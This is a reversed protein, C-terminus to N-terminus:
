KKTFAFWDMNLAANVITLTMVYRGPTLDIQALNDQTAWVHYAEHGCVDTSPLTVNGTKVTPTFTFQVQTTTGAVGEHGSIVYTGAQTVDVTYRYWDGNAIYGIYIDGAPEPGCGAANLDSPGGEGTCHISVADPRTLGCTMGHVINAVKYAVNAGGTDYLEVQIKGPITQPTGGYPQGTYGTPIADALPGDFPAADASGSTGAAGGASADSPGAGGTGGSGGSGGAGTSGGPGGGGTASSGGGGGTGTSTQGAAGGTATAGGGGGAAVSGGSGEGSPNTDTAASCGLGL